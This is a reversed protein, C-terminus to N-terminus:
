QIISKVDKLKIGEAEIYEMAYELFDNPDLDHRIDQYEEDDILLEDCIDILEGTDLGMLYNQVKNAESNSLKENVFQEFTKFNKM